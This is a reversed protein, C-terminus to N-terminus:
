KIFEKDADLKSDKAQAKLNKVRENIDEESGLGGIITTIDKSVIVKDASGLHIANMTKLTLGSRESM